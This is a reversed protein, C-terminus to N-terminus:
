LEGVPVRDDSVRMRLFIAVAWDWLKRTIVFVPVEPENERTLHLQLLLSSMSVFSAVSVILLAAATERKITAHNQTAHYLFTLTTTISIWAPLLLRPDSSAGSLYLVWSTIYAILGNTTLLRIVVAPPTYNLLWRSMMCDAFFYSLYASACCWMIALAVETVRFRREVDWDQGVSGVIAAAWGEHGLGPRIHLLEALFTFACRLGWWAAPVTSLARCILLPLYWKRDVGLIVAVRPHLGSPLSHGTDNSSPTRSTSSAPSPPVATSAASSPAVAKDPSDVKSLISALTSYFPPPPTTPLSDSLAAILDSDPTSPRAHLSFSPSSAADRYPPALATYIRQHEPSKTFVENLESASGRRDPPVFVRRFVLALHIACVAAVTGSVRDSNACLSACSAPLHMFAM